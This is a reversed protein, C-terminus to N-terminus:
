IRCEEENRRRIITKDKFNYMLCKIYFIIPFIASIVALITEDEEKRKDFVSYVYQIIRTYCPISIILSLIRGVLPIKALLIAILWWVNFLERPISFAETLYVKNDNQCPVISSLAYLNFFPLFALLPEPYAMKNLIYYISFAQLLYSVVIFVVLCILKFM